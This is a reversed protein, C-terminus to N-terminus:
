VLGDAFDARTLQTVGGLALSGPDGPFDSIGAIDLVLASGARAAFADADTIRGDSNSDLRDFVTDTDNAAGLM